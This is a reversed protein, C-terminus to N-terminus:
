NSTKVPSSTSVPMSLPMSLPASASSGVPISGTTVPSMGLVGPSLRARQQELDIGFWHQRPLLRSHLGAWLQPSTIGDIFPKSPPTAMFALATLGAVVGSEGLRKGDYLKMATGFSAKIRTDFVDVSYMEDLILHTM